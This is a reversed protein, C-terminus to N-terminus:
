PKPFIPPSRQQLILNQSNKKMTILSPTQPETTARRQQSESLHPKYAAQALWEKEVKLPPRIKM